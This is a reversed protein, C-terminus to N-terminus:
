NTISAPHATVKKLNMMMREVISSSDAPVDIVLPATEVPQTQYPQTQSQQASVLTSDSRYQSQNSWSQEKPVHSQETSPKHTQYASVPAQASPNQFHQEHAYVPKSEQYSTQPDAQFQVHSTHSQVPPALVSQPSASHRSKPIGHTHFTPYSAVQGSQPIAHSHYQQYPQPPQLVQSVRQGSQPQQYQQPQQTQYKEYPSTSHPQSVTPTNYQQYSNHSQSFEQRIAPHYSTTEKKEWTDPANQKTIQHPPLSPQLQGTSMGNSMGYSGYNPASGYAPITPTNYASRPASASSKSQPHTKPSKGYSLSGKNALQQRLHAELNGQYGNMFGGGPRYPSKYELPSRNHEKQLYAYQRFPNPKSVPAIRNSNSFPNMPKPPPASYPPRYQSPPALVGRPPQLVGSSPTSYSPHSSASSSYPAKSMPTYQVTPTKNSTSPTTYAPKAPTPTTKPQYSITAPSYSPKSSSNYTTATAPNHPATTPSYLPKSQANYQVTPASNYSTGYLAKSTANNSTPMPKYLPPSSSNYASTAHLTRPTAASPTGMSTYPTTAANSSPSQSSPETQRWQPDTGFQIAPRQARQLFNQQSRYAQPDVRYENSIDTQPKPKYVYPKEQNASNVRAPEAPRSIKVTIPGNQPASPYTASYAPRPITIIPKPITDLFHGRPNHRPNALDETFQARAETSKKGLYYWIQNEKQLEVKVQYTNRPITTPSNFEAWTCGEVFPDDKRPLDDAQRKTTNLSEKAKFSKPMPIANPSPKQLRFDAPDPLLLWKYEV